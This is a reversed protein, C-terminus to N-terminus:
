DLYKFKYKEGDKKSTASKKGGVFKQLIQLM